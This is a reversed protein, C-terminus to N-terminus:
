EESIRDAQGTAPFPQLGLSVRMSFHAMMKATMARTAPINPNV